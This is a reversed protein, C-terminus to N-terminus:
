DGVAPVCQKGGVGGSVYQVELYGCNAEEVELLCSSLM